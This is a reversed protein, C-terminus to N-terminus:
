RMRLCHTGTNKQLFKRMFMHAHNGCSMSFMFSKDFNVSANNNEISSINFNNRDISYSDSGDIVSETTSQSSVINSNITAHCENENDSADTFRSLISFKIRKSSRIILFSQLTEKGRQGNKRKKGINCNCYRKCPM